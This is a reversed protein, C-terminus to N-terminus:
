VAVPVQGGPNSSPPPKPLDDLDFIVRIMLSCSPCVAIDQEDRLDDLAIQFRDGCPCPYHYLQQAEDFTMDEIEIEDYISLNEDDSM